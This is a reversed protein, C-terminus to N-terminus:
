KPGYCLGDDFDNNEQDIDVYDIEFKPYVKLIEERIQALPGTINNKDNIRDLVALVTDKILV